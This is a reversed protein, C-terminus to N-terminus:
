SAGGLLAKTLADGEAYLLARVQPLATVSLACDCATAASARRKDYVYACGVDTHVFDEHGCNPCTPEPQPLLGNLREVLERDTRCPLGDCVEWVDRAHGSDTSAHDHDTASLHTLRAVVQELVEAPVQVATV